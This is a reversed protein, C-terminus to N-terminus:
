TPTLCKELHESLKQWNSVARHELVVARARDNGDGIAVLKARVTEVLRKGDFVPAVLTVANTMSGPLPVPVKNADASPSAIPPLAPPSARTM